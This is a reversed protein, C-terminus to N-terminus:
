KRAALSPSNARPPAVAWSRRMPVARARVADLEESYGPQSTAIVILRWIHLLHRLRRYGAPGRAAGVAERYQRVFEAREREPLGRFIVAPDTPNGARALDAPM